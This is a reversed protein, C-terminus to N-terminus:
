RAILTATESAGARSLRIASVRLPRMAGLPPPGVGLGVRVVVPVGFDAVVFLVGQPRALLEARDTRRFYDVLERPSNALSLRFSATIKWKDNEM